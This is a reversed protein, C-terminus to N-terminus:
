DDARQGERDSRRGHGKCSPPAVQLAIRTEAPPAFVLKAAAMCPVRELDRQGHNGPHDQLDYARSRKLNLARVDDQAGRVRNANDSAKERRDKDASGKM